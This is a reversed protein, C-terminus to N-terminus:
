NESLFFPQHPRGTTPGMRLIKPWVQRTGKLVGVKMRNESM